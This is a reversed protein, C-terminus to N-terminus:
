GREAQTGWFRLSCATCPFHQWAGLHKALQCLCSSVVVTKMIPKCKVYTVTPNCVESLVSIKSNSGYERLNEEPNAYTESLTLFNRLIPAGV